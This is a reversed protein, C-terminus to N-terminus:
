DNKYIKFIYPKLETEIRYVSNNEVGEFRHVSIIDQNIDKEFVNRIKDIKNM